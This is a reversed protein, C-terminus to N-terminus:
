GSTRARRTRSAPASIDAWSSVAGLLGLSCRAPEGAHDEAICVEAIVGLLVGSPARFPGRPFLTPVDQEARLEDRASGVAEDIPTRPAFDAENFVGAYHRWVIQHRWPRPRRRRPGAAPGRLHPARLHRPRQLPDRRRPGGPRVGAQPGTPALQRPAPVRGPPDQDGQARRPHLRTSTSRGQRSRTASRCLRPATGLDANHDRAPTAGEPWLPDGLRALALRVRARPAIPSERSGGTSRGRSLPTEPEGPRASPHAARFPQPRRSM